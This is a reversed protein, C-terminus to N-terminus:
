SPSKDQFVAVRDDGEKLIASTKLEIMTQCGLFDMLVAIRERGPMVHSVVANLGRLLGTSLACPM